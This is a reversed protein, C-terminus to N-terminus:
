KLITITNKFIGEATVGRVFYIGSALKEGSQGRGDITLEHSGAAMYTPGQITRVLRGQIDFMDVTVTGPKSTAFYLKSVPNLPNPSVSSMSATFNGNSVVDLSVDGGFASGNILTGSIHITVQNHGSPLGAFLIRLNAKTFCAQIEQIGNGDKDSNIVTKDPNSPVTTGNYTAVISALVVDSNSYDGGIPEIQFCQKPKGSALRVSGSTFVRAPVENTINATTVDADSLGGTDTVTLTVTYPGAAAYTHMPTSGSGTGGDGFDWAYTLSDGDPDTSATGDFSVPSGITGSYPGGANATPARNVNNVTITFSKTDTGGNGDSVRVTATYTGADSFGPALTVLGSTSVTMFLPGTVKTFTLPNGDPDTATLQ